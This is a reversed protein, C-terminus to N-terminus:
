RAKVALASGYKREENNTNIRDCAANFLLGYTQMDEADKTYISAHKLSGYLYADPFNTLLANSTSADSLPTFRAKYTCVVSGSGMPSTRLTSGVITYEYGDGSDYARHSDYVEPTVYTLARDPDSDWYVSRMGLYGTPLPGSGFTITVTATTEFELLKCKTQMEAEAYGIWNPALAEIATEGTRHLMSVIETQLESYVTPITM